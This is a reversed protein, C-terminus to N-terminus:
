IKVGLNQYCKTKWKGIVQSTYIGKMGSSFYATISAISIYAVSEIGFLEVGMLVCAIPANAAGSFVALFGMGALLGMPLPVFWILANGLTAGIFFLPTVEGGKFGAGLTFATFILKLLFDYPLMKEQFSSVITPLGLGIYKTTGILLVAVALVIGGIFPRLPAYSIKLKFISTFFHTSRSFLMAVLGSIIGVLISWFISNGTLSPVIEISYHTHGVGWITCFYDSLFATILCPLIALYKMKGLLLIEFAFIFGALPTGFVAAFGGSVGLAILIKRDKEKLGFKGTFQDSIAGGMQVATGERGASGGFLHTIITGLVVMPAMKLPIKKKPSKVEDILLNNGGVVSVGYQHYFYGIILGAIPLLYILWTNLERTDTAWTLGTLFLASGTGIFVSVLLSIIMWKSLYTFVLNNKLQQLL